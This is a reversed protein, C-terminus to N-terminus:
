QDLARAPRVGSSDGAFTPAFFFRQSSRAFLPAYEDNAHFDGGRLVRVEGSCLREGDGPAVDCPTGFGAGVDRCWESVNGLVDHLGFPNPPLLGVPHTETVASGLWAVGNWSEPASGFWYPTDTGGRAAHEWQAETPLALRARALVRTADHWSVREVPRLPADEAATFVSPNSGALRRWQAQTLEHKAILFPELEVAVLPSEGTFALPDVRPAGVPREADPRVAGMEFPGGPLLVLVVGDAGESDCTALDLFEWLGSAPDEGRPLLGLQPRLTLGGYRPSSAVAACAEAWSERAAAGTVTREALTRAFAHRARVGELLGDPALFARFDAVLESQAERWWEEEDTPAALAELDALVREHGPFRAALVEAEALWDEMDPAREPVAPWLRDARAVLGDLERADSLRLVEGHARNLRALSVAVGVFGALLSAAVLAAASVGVRHRRVFKAMRYATSPPGALVPEHRLFREVDEALAAASPYRRDREKEMARLCIWELERPLDSRVATPAPPADEAVVRAAEPLPRGGLEFPPRGCLLEYLIVGLAYVDTRTDVEGELQEPAMSALTGVVEGAHTLRTLRDAEEGEAARAIGFDIVKPRGAGDVLVNAGKLDRHIVGRRHAHEVAGCVEVLLRLREELGVDEDRVYAPLDRAGEVYELAFWPVRLTGEERAGSEYVQAIAPHHLSALIEAEVEFRRLARPGCLDARLLKLAVTRRPKDGRAEYVTGMGGTGIARVLEYPGVRAGPEPPAFPDDGDNELFGGAGEDHALLEVVEARLDADDGCVEDLREARREPPAEVVRGFAARVEDWREPDM